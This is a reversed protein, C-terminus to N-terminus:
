PRPAVALPRWAAWAAHLERLASDATFCAARVQDVDACLTAWELLVPAAVSKMYLTLKFHAMQATAPVGKDHGATVDATRPTAIRVLQLQSLDILTRPGGPVHFDHVRPPATHVNATM